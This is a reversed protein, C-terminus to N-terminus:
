SVVESEIVPTPEIKDNLTSIDSSINQMDQVYAARLEALEAKLQEVESSATPVSSTRRRGLPNPM